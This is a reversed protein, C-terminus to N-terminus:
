KKTAEAQANLAMMKDEIEMVLDKFRAERKIERTRDIPFGPKIHEVIMGPNASMIVIEDALYVAESIDHTVFFITAQEVRKGLERWIKLLLDQMRLRTKVDLAGFPEDMLLFENNALLSRAIAVRQLQGGSLTPYQAYKYAHDALNCLTLMELARERREKASVGQLKLGLEINEIVTLWPLSSYKQFVMGIRDEDQRPRVGQKHCNLLVEGSTPKQLGAIYRLLTSKGCGSAGLIAVFQGQGPKDEILLNLDKIIFSKGGDYSQNISKLELVVPLGTRQFKVPTLNM